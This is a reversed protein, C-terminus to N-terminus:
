DINVSFSSAAKMSRVEGAATMIPVFFPLSVTPTLNPPYTRKFFCGFRTDYAQSAAITLHARGYIQGMRVSGGGWDDTDDQIICLSDIWLYRLDLCKTIVVADIFTKPKPDELSELPIAKLRQQLTAKTTTIPHVEGWCHSLAVWRGTTQGKTEVLRPIEPHDQPSVDIIRSCPLIQDGPRLLEGSLTRRCGDHEQVCGDLWQKLLRFADPSCTNELPKRTSM